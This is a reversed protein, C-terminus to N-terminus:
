RFPHPLWPPQLPHLLPRHCLLLHHLSPHCRLLLPPPSLHGSPVAAQHSPLQLLLRLISDLTKLPKLRSPMGTCRTSVPHRKRPERTPAAPQPCKIWCIDSWCPGRRASSPFFSTGPCIRAAATGPPNASSGPFWPLLDLPLIPPKTHPSSTLVSRQLREPRPLCRAMGSKPKPKVPKSPVDKPKRNEEKEPSERSCPHNESVTGM